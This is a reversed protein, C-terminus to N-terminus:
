QKKRVERRRQMKFKRNNVICQSEHSVSNESHLNFQEKQYFWSRKEVWRYNRRKQNPFSPSHVPCSHRSLLRRTRVWSFSKPSSGNASQACYYLANKHGILLWYESTRRSITRHSNTGLPKEAQAQFSEDRRKERGSQSGRPRRAHKISFCITARLPNEKRQALFFWQECPYLYSFKVNSWDCSQFSPSAM